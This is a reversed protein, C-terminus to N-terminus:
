PEVRVDLWVPYHDSPFEGAGAPPHRWVGGRVVALERSPLVYDVRLGFRATDDSELGDVAVDAQPVFASNLRPSRFLVTGLPDKFSSGEDPDANLDGVIVFRAGRELGGPRDADDVIYEAGALYDAWFRIEDHNRRANRREEGDFAPPTPHSALVHLEVGGPLMVPVDWHSKSSLRMYALEDEDYWAEGGPGTPLFAGPMYSWPLTRFTRVRDVAIELREDVLLAMAYQGPFTGFGWCDNGYARAEDSQPGPRGGEGAVMAPYEVVARGDNDLDFGSPMGTNSPAMFARMRLPALGPAQPVALYLDCFRQANLGPEADPAVDPGGPVDYAIENILVITPRLRQLVEALQRARPHDGTLLDRTRLDEVNFTAVRLTVAAPGSPGPVPAAPDAPGPQAWSLAPALAWLLMLVFLLRGHPPAAAPM